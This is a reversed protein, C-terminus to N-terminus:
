LLTLLAVLWPISSLGAAIFFFIGAPILTARRARRAIVEIRDQMRDLHGSFQDATAPPSSKRRRPKSKTKAEITQTLKRATKGLLRNAVFSVPMKLLGVKAAIVGQLTPLIAGHILAGILESRVAPDALRRTDSLAQRLTQITIDVVAALQQLIRTVVLLSAVFVGLFFGQVTLYILTLVAVPTSANPFFLTLWILWAVVLSGGLGGAAWPVLHMVGFLQHFREQLERTKYSTIDVTAVSHEGDGAIIEGKPSPIDVGPLEQQHEDVEDTASQPSDSHEGM